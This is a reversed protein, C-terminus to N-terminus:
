VLVSPWSSPDSQPLEGIGIDRQECADRVHGLAVLLASGAELMETTSYADTLAAVDARIAGADLASVALMDRVLEPQSTAFGVTPLVEDLWSTTRYALGYEQRLHSLLEAIEGTLSPLDAPTVRAIAPVEEAVGTSVRALRQRQALGLGVLAVGFGAVSAESSSPLHILQVFKSAAAALVGALGAIMTLEGASSRSPQQRTQEHSQTPAKAADSAPQEFEVRTSPDPPPLQRSFQRFRTRARGRVLSSRTRQEEFAGGVGEGAKTGRQKGHM